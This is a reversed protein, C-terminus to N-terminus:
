NIKCSKILALKKSKKGRIFLLMQNQGQWTICDYDIYWQQCSKLIWGPAHAQVYVLWWLRSSLLRHQGSHVPVCMLTKSLFTISTFIKWSNRSFHKLGRATLGQGLEQPFDIKSKLAKDIILKNLILRWAWRCSRSLSTIERGYWDRAWLFLVIAVLLIKTTELFHLIAM